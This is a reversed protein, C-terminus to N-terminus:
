EGIVTFRLTAWVAGAVKVFVAKTLPPPSILRLLSVEVSAAATIEMASRLTLLAAEGSGTAAPLLM